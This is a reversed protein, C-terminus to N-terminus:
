LADLDRVVWCDDDEDKDTRGSSLGTSFSWPIYNAHGGPEVNDVQLLIV